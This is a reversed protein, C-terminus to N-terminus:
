DHDVAFGTEENRQLLHPLTGELGQLRIPERAIQRSPDILEHAIRIKAAEHGLGATLARDVFETPGGDGGLGFGKVFREQSASDEPKQREVKSKRGKWRMNTSWM